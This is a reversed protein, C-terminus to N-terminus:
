GIGPGGGRDRRSSAIVRPIIEAGEQYSLSRQEWEQVSGPSGRERADDALHRVLALQEERIRLGRCLGAGM